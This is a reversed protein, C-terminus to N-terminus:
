KVRELALKAKHLAGKEFCECSLELASDYMSQLADRMDLLLERDVVYSAYIRANSDQTNIAFMLLEPYISTVKAVDKIAQELNTM